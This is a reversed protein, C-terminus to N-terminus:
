TTFGFREPCFRSPDGPQEQVCYCLRAYRSQPGQAGADTQSKAAVARILAKVLQLNTEPRDLILGGQFNGPSTELMYSPVFGAPLSAKTGLDDLVVVHTAAFNEERRAIQGEYPKLSSVNFFANGTEDM